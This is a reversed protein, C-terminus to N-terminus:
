HLRGKEVSELEAARSAIAFVYAQAVSRAIEPPLFSLNAEAIGRIEGLALLMDSRPAGVFHLALKAADGILREILAGNLLEPAGNMSM